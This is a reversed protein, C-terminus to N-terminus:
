RVSCGASRGGGSWMGKIGLTCPNSVHYLLLLFSPPEFWWNEALGISQDCGDCPQANVVVAVFLVAPSNVPKFQSFSVSHYRQVDM